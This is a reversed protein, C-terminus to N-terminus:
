GRSNRSGKYFLGLDGKFRDQSWPGTRAFSLRAENAKAIGFDATTVPEQHRPRASLVHTLGLHLWLEEYAHTYVYIYIYVCVSHSVDIYIYM